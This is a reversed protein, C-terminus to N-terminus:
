RNVKRKFILNTNSLVGKHKFASTLIVEMQHKTALHARLCLHIFVRNNHFGEFIGETHCICNQKGSKLYDGFQVYSVIVHPDTCQM